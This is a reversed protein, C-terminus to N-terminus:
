FTTNVAATLLQTAMATNTLQIIDTVIFCSPVMVAAYICDTTQSYVDDPYKFEVLSTSIRRTKNWTFYVGEHQNHVLLCKERTRTFAMKVIRDGNYTPRYLKTPM